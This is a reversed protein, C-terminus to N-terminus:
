KKMKKVFFIGVAVIMFIVGITEVIFTMEVPQAFNPM